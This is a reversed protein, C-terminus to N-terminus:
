SAVLKLDAQQPPHRREMALPPRYIRLKGDPFFDALSPETRARLRDAIARPRDLNLEIGHRELDGRLRQAVREIRKLTSLYAGRWIAMYPRHDMPNMGLLGRLRNQPLFTYASVEPHRRLVWKRAQEFRTFSLTRIEQDINYLVGRANAHGPTRSVYPVFPDIVVLLNADRRIAEEFNSTRTVAGDELFRGAVPVAAFAPHISLSARIARSIPVTVRGADGFLVHRREDQDSAGIYLERDLQRFDNTAGPLQYAYELMREFAGSHLPPGLMDSLRFILSEIDGDGSGTIRSAGAKWLTRLTAFMRRRLGTVNVHRWRLLSLNMNPIRGGPVGAISAMVEDVSFGVALFGTVVAGASIGFFMDFDNVGRGVFCDDLCKLAGLEFYIGTIGGGAACLATRSERRDCIMSCARSAVREAFRASAERPRQRLIAGVGTAGFRAIADDVSESTGGVLVLIRHFGYRAEIDVRDLREVLQMAQEFGSGGSLRSRADIVLMSYYAHNLRTRVAAPTGVQDWELQLRTWIKPLANLLRDDATSILIRKM